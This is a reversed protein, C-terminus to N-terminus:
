SNKGILSKYFDKWSKQSSLIDKKLWMFKFNSLNNGGKTFIKGSILWM